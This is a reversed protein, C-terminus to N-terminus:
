RTYRRAGMVANYTPRPTGDPNLLGTDWNPKGTAANTGPSGTMTYAVVEKVGADRAKKLARPWYGVAGQNDNAYGFETFYLGPTKGARTTFGQNKAFQRLTKQMTASRGIGWKWPRASTDPPALPDNQQYPHIAFGSAKIGGKKLAKYAYDLGGQPSVEGFLTRAQPDVKAMARQGVLFLQRYKAPAMKLDPENVFSYTGVRGKFHTAAAKVFAAYKKPDGMGHSKFGERNDLVIQPHIGLARARNVIDDFLSFDYGKGHAVRERSIILRLTHGGMARGQQLSTFNGARLQGDDQFGFEM